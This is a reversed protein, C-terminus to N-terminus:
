KNDLLKIYLKYSLRYENKNTLEWLNLTGYNYKDMLINYDPIYRLNLLINEAPEDTKGDYDYYYEYDPDNRDRINGMLFYNEDKVYIKRENRLEKVKEIIVIETIIAKTYDNLLEEFSISSPFYYFDNNM